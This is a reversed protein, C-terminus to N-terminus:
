LPLLCAPTPSPIELWPQLAGSAADRAYARLQDAGHSAVWLLRGDDHMSMFRPMVGTGTQWGSAIVACGDASLTLIAIADQGRNTAYVHRGDPSVCVAASINAGFWTPPLLSYNAIPQLRADAERWALISLSSDLENVLYVLPLSPHWALHRCGAGPRQVCQGAIRLAAAGDFALVWVLDAGRDPVLVYRGDPTFSIQHPQNGSQGRRPGLASALPLVCSPPHLALSADLPLVTVHGSGFSAALVASGDPACALHAANRGGTAARGLVTLCADDDSTGVELATVFDADSHSVFVRRPAHPHAAFYSPDDLPLTALTRAGQGALHLLSVGQARGHRGPRTFGGVLLHRLPPMGMM